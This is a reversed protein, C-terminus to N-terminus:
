PQVRFARIRELLAERDREVMPLVSISVSDNGVRFDTIRVPVSKSWQDYVPLFAIADVPQQRLMELGGIMMWAEIAQRNSVGDPQIEAQRQLPPLRYALDRQWRQLVRGAVSDALRMPLRLNGAMMKELVLQVRGEAVVRPRFHMSVIADLEKARGAIILTGDHLRVVPTEIHRQLAALYGNLALWRNVFGDIEAESFTVTVAQRPEPEGRKVASALEAVGGQLARAKGDARNAAAQRQEESLERTFWEPTALSMRGLLALGAAVAVLVALVTFM